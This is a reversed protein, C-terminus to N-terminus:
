REQEIRANTLADLLDELDQGEDTLRYAQGFGSEALRESLLLQIRDFDGPQIEVAHWTRCSSELNLTPLAGFTQLTAWQRHNLRVTIPKENM